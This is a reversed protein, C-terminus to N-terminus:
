KKIADWLARAGMDLADADPDIGSKIYFDAISVAMSMIIAGFMGFPLDKLLKEDSARKFIVSYDSQSSNDIKNQRGPLKRPHSEYQSIFSLEVTHQVLYYILNTFYGTYNDKVAAKESFDKRLFPIMRSHIEEYLSNILIEKSPFYRYITGVGIKAKDAIQSMPTDHVGIKSFLKLASNLISARKDM